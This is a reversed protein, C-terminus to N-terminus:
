EDSGGARLVDKCRNIFSPDVAAWFSSNQKAATFLPRLVIAWDGTQYRHPAFPLLHNFVAMLKELDNLEGFCLSHPMGGEPNGEQQCAVAALVDQNTLYDQEKQLLAVSQTPYNMFSDWETGSTNDRLAAMGRGSQVQEAALATIVRFSSGQVLGWHAGLAARYYDRLFSYDNVGLGLAFFTVLAALLFSRRLVQVDMAAMEQFLASNLFAPPEIQGQGPRLAAPPLELFEIACAAVLNLLTKGAQAMKQGLALIKQREAWRAEESEANKYAQWLTIFNLVERADILLDVAITQEAAV